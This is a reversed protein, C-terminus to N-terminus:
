KTCRVQVYNEPSEKWKYIELNSWLASRVFGMPVTQPFKGQKKLKYISTKKLGSIEMVEQLKILRPEPTLSPRSSGRPNPVNV